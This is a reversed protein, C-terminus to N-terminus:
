RLIDEMVGGEAYPTAFDLLAGITPVIDVLAHTGSAQCDRQIDPGVALLMVHRCGDCSDGHNQFGGHDDDHRGHDNTVILTTKDRYHPDAQLRDWLDGVIEDATEIAQLYNLWRGSHGAHDVDSLYLLTLQPQFTTLVWDMERSVDEDDYGQAYHTPWYDPGYEEHYSPQWLDEEAIYALVYYSSDPPSQYTKRYYEWVSPYRLYVQGTEPNEAFSQRVGSRITNVGYITVTHHDNYMRTHLCGEASLREMEPVHRREPDGFTESYRAGDIIVLVVNETKQEEGTNDSMETSTDSEQFSGASNATSASSAADSGSDTSSRGSSLATAETESAGASGSNLGSSENVSMANSPLSGNTEASFSSPALSQGMEAPPNDSGCGALLLVIFATLFLLFMYKSPMATGKRSIM